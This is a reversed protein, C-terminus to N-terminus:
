REKKENLYNLLSESLYHSKGSWVVLGNKDFLFANGRGIARFYLDSPAERIEFSYDGKEYHKLTKEKSYDDEIISIAKAAFKQSIESFREVSDLSKSGDFRGGLMLKQWAFVAFYEFNELEEETFLAEIFAKDRFGLPCENKDIVRLDKDVILDQHIRGAILNSPDELSKTFLDLLRANLSSPHGSWFVTSDPRVLITTPIAGIRLTGRVINAEDIFVPLPVIDGKKSLFKRVTKEKENTIAISEIGRSKLDPILSELHPFSRICPGCWTAWNEILLPKGSLDLDEDLAVIRDLGQVEKDILIEKSHGLSSALFALLILLNSKM